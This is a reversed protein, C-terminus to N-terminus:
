ASIWPDTQVAGLLLAFATNEVVLLDGTAASTRAGFTLAGFVTALLLNYKAVVIWREQDRDLLGDSGTGIRPDGATRTALDRHPM